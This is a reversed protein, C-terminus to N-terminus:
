INLKNGEFGVYEKPLCETIALNLNKTDSKKIRKPSYSSSVKKFRLPSLNNKNEASSKRVSLSQFNKIDLKVTNMPKIKSKYFSTEFYPENGVRPTEFEIKHDNKSTFPIFKTSFGGTKHFRNEYKKVLDRARKDNAEFDDYNESLTCSESTIDHEFKKNKPSFPKM